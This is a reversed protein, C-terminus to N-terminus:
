SFASGEDEVLEVEVSRRSAPSSDPTSGGSAAVSAAGAGPASKPSAPESAEPTTEASLCHEQRAMLPHSFCAPLPCLHELVFVLNELSRWFLLREGLLDGSVLKVSDKGLLASFSIDAADEGAPQVLVGSPKLNILRPSAARGSPSLARSGPLGYQGPAGGAMAGSGAQAAGAGEQQPPATVPQVATCLFLYSPPPAAAQPEGGEGGEGAPAVAAPIIRLSKLLWLRVAVHPASPTGLNCEVLESYAEHETKLALSEIITTSHLQSILQGEAIQDLQTVVSGPLQQQKLALAERIFHRHDSLLCAVLLAPFPLRMAARVIYADSQQEFPVHQYAATMGYKTRWSSDPCPVHRWQKQGADGGPRLRVDPAAASASLATWAAGQRPPTEAVVTRHGELASAASAPTATSPTGAPIEAAPPVATSSVAPVAGGTADGPGAAAALDGADGAAHLSATAADGDPLVFTRLCMQVSTFASEAITRYERGSLAPRALLGSPETNSTRRKTVSQRHLTRFSIRGQLVEQWRRFERLAFDDQLLAALRDPALELSRLV